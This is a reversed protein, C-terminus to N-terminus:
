LAKIWEPIVWRGGDLVQQEAFIGPKDAYYMHMSAGDILFALFYEGKHSLLVVKKGDVHYMQRKCCMAGDIREGVEYIREDYPEVERGVVDPFGFKDLNTTDFLSAASAPAIIGLWAVAVLGTVLLRRMM